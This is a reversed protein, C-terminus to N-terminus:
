TGPDFPPENTVRRAARLKASRSRPNDHTERLSAVVPKRTLRDWINTDAFAQKVRRDELSHFSILVARGGPRLVGPLDALLRDLAALEGNVAIRLAQFVRTAPDIGPKRPSRPVCRRVLAALQETTEIPGERRAEVLRKAIRRSFREEGYEFILDALDRETLRHILDSAPEGEDTNMRMDLPGPRGFSFGRAADDLQDSCIGLDALVGDVEQIGLEALVRPLEAFSARVLTAPLGELRGRALDLMAADQDLAILRGTPAVASAILRAHGAAGTTADVIVQGPQAALYHLVEDPLVSVHHGAPESRSETM